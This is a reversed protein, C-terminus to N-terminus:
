HCVLQFYSSYRAAIISVEQNLNSMLFTRKVIGGYKHESKGKIIFGQHTINCGLHPWYLLCKNQLVSHYADIM